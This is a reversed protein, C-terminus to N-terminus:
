WEQVWYPDAPNGTLRVVASRVFRGGPREATVTIRFV